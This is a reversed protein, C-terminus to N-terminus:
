ARPDTQAHKGKFVLTNPRIAVLNWYGKAIFPNRRFPVGSVRARGQPPEQRGFPAPGIEGVIFV